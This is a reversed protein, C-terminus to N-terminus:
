YDSGELYRVAWDLEYDEGHQFIKMAADYDLPIREEVPDRSVRDARPDIYPENNEDLTLSIPYAVGVVGDSLLCGGGTMQASGNPDTMGALTVNPLKSLCYAMSDGASICESNTLVVVKLDSFEGDGHIRHEALRVYKGNKRMGLGVAYMDEDTLLECLGYSIDANGGMNNRMDIVLYEMGRDKLDRLKRRFMEKTQKSRGTYFAMEDRIMSGTTEASLVMYGCSGDLMRTKFNSNYLEGMSEPEKLFASRFEGITHEREDEFAALTVTQEAGREDLFSVEVTEGGMTSLYLPAFRDANAKVSTGWDPVNNVAESVPVGDWKTIVTGTYIGLDNVEPETCVAIYEGSDLQIIALGYDNLKFVSSYKNEDYDTQVMVHGDHLESCFMSVADAFMAPDQEKEAQEVMPMYKDELAYFDIDKWEKLVYSRDMEKVLAHFSGTYSKRIFNHENNLTALFIMAFIVTLVSTCTLTVKYGTDMEACIMPLLALVAILYMPTYNRLFHPAGAVCIFYHVTTLLLPVPCFEKWIKLKRDNYRWRHHLIDLALVLVILAGFWILQKKDANAVSFCLAGFFNKM